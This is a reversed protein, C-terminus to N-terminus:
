NVGMLQPQPPANPIGGPPKYKSQSYNRVFGRNFSKTRARKQAGMRQEALQELQSLNASRDQQQMQDEFRKHGLKRFARTKEEQEKNAQSASVGKYIGTGISTVGMIIAAAIGM